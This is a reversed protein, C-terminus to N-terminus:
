LKLDFSTKRLEELDSALLGALKAEFDLEFPGNLTGKVGEGRQLKLIYELRPSEADLLDRVNHPPSRIKGASKHDKPLILELEVVAELPNSLAIHLSQYWSTYFLPRQLLVAEVESVKLGSVDAIEENSRKGETSMYEVMRQVMPDIKLDSEEPEPRLQSPKTNHEEDPLGPQRVICKMVAGAAFKRPLGRLLRIQVSLLAQANAKGIARPIQEKPRMLLAKSCDLAFAQVSICIEGAAETKTGHYIKWWSKDPVRLLDTIAVKRLNGENKEDQMMLFGLKEKGNLLWDQDFLEIEVIQEPLYVLFDFWGDDGWKPTVTKQIVPTSYFRDGIHIRAFPDSTPNGIPNWDKGELNRAELVGLRVIAEPQPYQMSSMDVEKQQELTLWHVFVRNPVVLLDTLLKTIVSNMTSKLFPFKMLKAAGSLNYSIRPPAVMTVQLGGVIPLTEMLPRLVVYVEGSIKLQQIGVEIGPLVELRIDVLDGKEEPPWTVGICLEVGPHNKRNTKSVNLHTFSPPVNGLDFTKFTIGNLPAPLSAQLEPEITTKILNKVALNVYPWIETAVFNLWAVDSTKEENTVHKKNAADGIAAILERAKAIPDEHGPTLLSGAATVAEALVREANHRWSEDSRATPAGKCNGM